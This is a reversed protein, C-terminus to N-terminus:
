MSLHLSVPILLAVVVRMVLASFVGSCLSGAASGQGGRGKTATTTTTKTTARPTTSPTPKPPPPPPPTKRCVPATTWGEAECTMTASGIIDYGENCRFVVFSNHRYPPRGEVRMAFQVDPPPCNLKLCRPPEPHYAEDEKCVILPEGSMVYNDNCTYTVTEQYTLHSKDAEVDNTGYQINPPLECKVVECEFAGGSWGSLLCQMFSVKGALKYGKNCHLTITAGFEIGPALDWVGNAVDTPSGCSQEQSRLDPLTVCLLALLWLRALRSCSVEFHFM